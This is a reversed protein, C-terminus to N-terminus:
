LWLTRCSRDEKKGKDVLVVIDVGAHTIGTVASGFLYAAIVERRRRFIPALIHKIEEYKGM